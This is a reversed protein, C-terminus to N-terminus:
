SCLLHLREFFTNVFVLLAFILSILVAAASVDKVFKIDDSKEPHFVDCMREIATNVLESGIVLTCALFLFMWEVRNVKFYWAMAMVIGTAIFHIKLPVDKKTAEKLGNFAYAFAKIRKMLISM